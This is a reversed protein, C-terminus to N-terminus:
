RAIYKVSQLELYRFVAWNAFKKQKRPYPGLPLGSLDTASAHAAANGSYPIGLKKCNSYMDSPINGSLAQAEFPAEVFQIALGSELHWEM